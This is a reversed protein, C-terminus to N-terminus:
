DAPLEYVRIEPNFSVPLTRGPKSEWALKGTDFLEQYRRQHKRYEEAIAAGPVHDDKFFRGYASEAVAVHTVGMARLGALDHDLIVYKRTHVIRPDAGPEGSPLGAYYDQAIRADPPLEDAVWQRLRLRSDNGLQDLADGVRLIGPIAVLVTLVSAVAMRAWCPKAARRAALVIGLGALVHVTLITPLLYREGHVASLSMLLFWALPFIAVARQVATRERWTWVHWGIAVAAAIWVPWPVAQALMTAYHLSFRSAEVNGEALAVHEIEFKLGRVFRRLNRVMEFNILVFGAAAILAVLGAATWRSRAEARPARFAAFACAPVIAAWGVYKASAAIAVAGGLLLIAPFSRNRELLASALLALSLGFALATDEKFCHAVVVLTSISLAMIAAAAGPGRGYLLVLTGAICVVAGAAFGASVWRGVEVIHQARPGVAVRQWGTHVLEWDRSDPAGIWLRNVVRTTTLMLQPHYFNWRGELLQVVKSPEDAHLRAPFDNHRTFLTLAAIFLCIGLLATAATSAAPKMSTPM